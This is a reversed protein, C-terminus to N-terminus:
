SSGCARSCARTRATETPARLADPPGRPTSSPGEPESSRASSASPHGEALAQAFPLAEALADGRESEPGVTLFREPSVKPMEPLAQELTRAFRGQCVVAKADSDEVIYAAESGTLRYGIPVGVAGVKQLAFSLDYYEACNHMMWAVRDGRGIGLRDRLFSALRCAREDWEDWTMRGASGVVAEGQPNQRAVFELSGPKPDTM